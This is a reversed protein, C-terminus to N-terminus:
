RRAAGEELTVTTALVTCPYPATARLYLRTNVDFSGNVPVPDTDYDGWQYNAAVTAAEEVPPLRDLYALETGYELAAHQTDKLILGLHSVRAKSGLSGPGKVSFLLKGSKFLAHYSLGTVAYTTAEPIAIAGSVVTFTGQNKSNAWCVVDKGELHSLGTITATSAGSYVVFSDAIKNVVGGLAEKTLAWKELYRVVVGGVIRAVTYYVSDEPAGPLTVVDEICGETEITIFCHVEEVKDYVLVVAGGDCRVMHVRTEPRRQVGLRNVRPYCIEPTILTLETTTLGEATAAVEMVHFGTRDVFVGAQDIKIPEVNESGHTTEPRLNFNTPSLVTDFSSSRCHFEAGGAGMALQSIALLWHITDVPGSGISRNIPGADGLYLPDFNEFDDTVSAWIKDKGAWWIRGTHFAVASPFGRRTSWAGESWLPSPDLDGFDQLVACNVVTSSVYSLVRAVGTLSGSTLSLSVEASGAVYISLTLRYYVIQNDLTDDYTTTINAAYTAVVNWVGVAGISQELTIRAAGGVWTGAIVVAFARSTGIGSVRIPNTSSVSSLSATVTQGQSAVSFLSGVNTSKFYPKSATLTTTPVAVSGSLAGPALTILSFNSATFPGTAPEYTVVSWSRGAARREIKQPAGTTGRAIFLVDGSQDQRIDDLNATGFLTPLSLTGASEINCSDVLVQYNDRTLFQLYVSAATPTFALSHTGTGLSAESIYEDGGATSGLRVLVPGRNIVIRLAHEVNQDPASITLTQTRIAAASTGSGILALYGGTLWASDCSVTEDADTWSIVNAGFNGNVVVTSVSPRAVLVDNIRVRMVLDTLELLATDTNSFVFALHRVNGTAVATPGIYQLGPRLSMPGMTRPIWNMQTEASLAVRKIDARNRALPSIVGRNFALLFDSDAM